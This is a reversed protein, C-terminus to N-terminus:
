ETGGIRVPGEVTGSLANSGEFIISLTPRAASAVGDGTEVMVTAPRIVGRPDRLMATWSSWGKATQITGLRNARWVIGTAKDTLSMSGTAFRAGPAQSVAFRVGYRTAGGAVNGSGSVARRAGPTTMPRSPMHASRLLVAGGQAGTARGDALVRKGNVFVHRVGESPASPQQYTAHDSITRPDFITVDAAMGPVLYGRDAMGIIAAPLASMKRIADQWTLAETERVYHGLVRPFSGWGRPHGGTRLSAGCDCAMAANPYQMFSVLDEEKGFRLITPYDGDFRNSGPEDPKELLRIVAEGPRVNMERTFDNLEHDPSLLHVGGPGNFRLTMAREIEDIIKARTPPDAFRKLMAQRGGAQAWGPVNLAALGSMGALYPYLDVATYTGRATAQDIMALVAKANGQEAGQSKMHTIVPLLGAQEGIAITEAMGKFSSYNEEPRIRDHNPFNTRWKAAVSVIDVVQDAGAYYAPKYDLGAAVGWAGRALNRDIIDRMRAVEAKTARRDEKGVVEAWTANFGIYLGINEALGNKVFDALQRTIDTTGHGDANTIETTVGQTLMNVATGIADPEAHSHINIFGPAVMLGNADITTGARARGLKGVAAIHGDKIAVDGRYPPMGSGDVITGGRIITDYEAPQAQAALPLASMGLAIM